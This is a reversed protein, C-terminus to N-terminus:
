LERGGAIARDSVQRRRSRVLVEQQSKNLLDPARVSECKPRFRVDNYTATFSSKVVILQDSNNRAGVLFSGRPTSWLRKYTRWHRRRSGSGCRAVHHLGGSAAAAERGARWGSM